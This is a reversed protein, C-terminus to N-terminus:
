LKSGDGVERVQDMLRYEPNPKFKINSEMNQITKRKIIINYVYVILRELIYLCTFFALHINVTILRLIHICLFIKWIYVRIHHFLNENILVTRCSILSKYIFSLPPPISAIFTLLSRM